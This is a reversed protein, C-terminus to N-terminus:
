AASSRPVLLQRKSIVEGLWAPKRTSSEKLRIMRSPSPRPLEPSSEEAEMSRARAAKAAETRVLERAPGQAAKIGDRRFGATLRAITRIEDGADFGFCPDLKTDNGAPFFRFEGHFGARGQEAISIMYAWRAGKDDAIPVNDGIRSLGFPLGEFDGL